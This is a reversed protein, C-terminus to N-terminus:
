NVYELLFKNIAVQFTLEILVLSECTISHIILGILYETQLFCFHHIIIEWNFREFFQSVEHPKRAFTM